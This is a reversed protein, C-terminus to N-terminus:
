SEREAEERYLHAGHEHASRARVGNCARARRALDQAKGTKGDLARTTKKAESAGTVRAGRTAM